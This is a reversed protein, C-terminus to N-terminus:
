KTLYSIVSQIQTENLVGGKPFGLFDPAEDLEIQGYPATVSDFPEFNRGIATTCDIPLTKIIDPHTTMNIKAEHIFEQVDNKHVNWVLEDHVPILFRADLKLRKIMQRNRDITRKALTGCSGQIKSNVLQNGSRSQIKRIVSNGFNMVALNNYRSFCAKMHSAWMPTAEFMYRRHGDPLTVYGNAQGEHIQNVRWEEAQPFRARYREVAEWMTTSSWGMREAVDSLAGSYWYGFNAVKGLENRWYKYATKPEMPLGKLNTLLRPHLDSTAEGSRFQLERFLQETMEPIDISLLDATTGIHLDAYPLQGYAKRFEKDGSQDGILVLEVQRWDQSVILYDSGDSEYFGRV